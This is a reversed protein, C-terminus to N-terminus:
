EDPARRRQRVVRTAREATVGEDILIQAAINQGERLVGVLVHLADAQPAGVESATQRAFELATQTRRTYPLITEGTSSPSSTQVISEVRQRLKTADIAFGHLILGPRDTPQTTMALLLHETGVYEHGLRRAERRASMLLDQADISFAASEQNM